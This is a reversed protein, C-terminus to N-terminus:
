VFFRKYFQMANGCMIKQVLQVPTYSYWYEEHLRSDELYGILDARLLPMKAASEYPDMHTITGDFDTGLAIVDWGSKNDVAAVIQFANDWFLRCYQQRQQKEDKVTALQRVTRTSGIVGKDVMLGIIGNSQHIACIDEDCLNITWRHFRHNRSKVSADPQKMSHDLTAFGNVGTHSCIVPITDAPYSKNHHGVFQYYEKRAAASMHKVDILIRKGNKNSLLERIVHWGLDNIGKNKGKNQNILNNIPPKFSRAHGCLQNWFHHALNISFPPTEWNKITQINQTLLGKLEDNSLKESESCGVGLAHAGEISLIGALINHSKLAQELEHYNNALMFRSKGDPSKGQANFVYRYEAELEPFYNSHTKLHAIRVGDYGTIVEHMINIRKKGLLLKPIKRLHLFGREVPYLSINFVRVNGNVLAELHSQSEKLIQKSNNGITKAFGGDIKHRINEWLNRVPEPHGSNFAKLNPHCHLDVTFEEENM